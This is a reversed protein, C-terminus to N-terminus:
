PEQRRASRDLKRARPEDPMDYLDTLPQRDFARAAAEADSGVIRWDAANGALEAPLHGPLAPPAHGSWDGLYGTDGVVLVGSPCTVRGLVEQHM